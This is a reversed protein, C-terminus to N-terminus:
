NVRVIRTPSPPPLFRICMLHTRDTVSPEGTPELAREDGLLSSFLTSKGDDRHPFAQAIERGGERGECRSGGYLHVRRALSFPLPFLTRRSFGRGSFPSRNHGGPSSSRARSEYLSLHTSLSVQYYSSEAMKSGCKERERERQVSERVGAERVVTAKWGDKTRTM